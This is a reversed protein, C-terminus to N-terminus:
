VSSQERHGAAAAEVAQKLLSVKRWGEKWLVKVVACSLPLYFCPGPQGRGGGAGRSACLQCLKLWLYRLHSHSGCTEWGEKAGVRM